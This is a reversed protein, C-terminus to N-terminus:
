VFCTKVCAQLGDRQVHIYFMRMEKVVSIYCVYFAYFNLGNDYLVYKLM